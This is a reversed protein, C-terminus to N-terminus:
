IFITDKIFQLIYKIVLFSDVNNKFQITFQPLDGFGKARFKFLFLLISIRNADAM